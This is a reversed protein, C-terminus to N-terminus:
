EAAALAALAPIAIATAILLYAVCPRWMALAVHWFGYRGREAPAVFVRDIVPAASTRFPAGSDDGYGSVIVHDGPRLVAICEGTRIATTAPQLAAVLHAGSVPITGRATSIAFPRQVLRPGRLWSTIEIGVAPEPDDELIVGDVRPYRAFLLQMRYGRWWLTVGFLMLAAVAVIAGALLVPVLNSYLVMTRATAGMRVLLAILFTVGVLQMIASRLGLLGSPRRLAYATFALAAVTPPIVSLAIRSGADTVVPASPTWWEGDGGPWLTCAIPLWLGLLLLESLALMLVGHVWEGSRRRAVIVSFGVFTAFTAAVAFGIPFTGALESSANPDVVFPALSKWAPWALAIVFAHLVPLLVAVRMGRSLKAPPLWTAFIWFAVMYTLGYRFWGLDVARDIQKCLLDVGLTVAAFTIVCAAAVVYGIWGDLKGPSPRQVM